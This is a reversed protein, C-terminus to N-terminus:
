ARVPEAARTEWQVTVLTLLALPTIMFYSVAFLVPVGVFPLGSVRHLGRASRSRWRYYGALLAVIGGHAVLPLMIEGSLVSHLVTAPYLFLMTGLTVYHVAVPLPLRHARLWGGLFDVLNSRRWRLQQSFWQEYTEPVKTACVATQALRTRYGKEIIKRTLYRDEGYKV